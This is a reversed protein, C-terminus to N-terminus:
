LGRETWSMRAHVRGTAEITHFTFDCRETIVPARGHGHTATLTEGDVTAEGGPPTGFRYSGLRTEAQADMVTLRTPTARDPNALALVEMGAHVVGNRYQERATRVTGAERPNPVVGVAREGPTLQVDTVRVHAGEPVDRAQVRLTVREVTGGLTWLQQTLRM